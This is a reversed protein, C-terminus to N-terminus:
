AQLSCNTLAATVEYGIGASGGELKLVIEWV